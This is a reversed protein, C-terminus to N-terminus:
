SRCEVLPWHGLRPPTQGQGDATRAARFSAEAATALAEARATNETVPLTFAAALRDILAVRFYPPFAAEDPRFIYTLVPHEVDTHIRRELVRYEAGAGIGPPRSGGMDRGLSVARLFHAPLQYAYLFDAAPAGALRALTQQATAFSWPHASLLGDREITYLAAAVDAEATGEEFSSIAEAGIRILAASALQIDTMM